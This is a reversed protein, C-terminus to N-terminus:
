FLIRQFFNISKSLFKSTWEMLKCGRVNELAIIINEPTPKSIMGAHLLVRPTFDRSSPGTDMSKGKGIVSELVNTCGLIARDKSIGEGERKLHLIMENAAEKGKASMKINKLNKKYEIASKCHYGGKIVQSEAMECVTIVNKVEALWDEWELICKIKSRVLNPLMHSKKSKLFKVLKLGHFVTIDLNLFRGKKRQHPPALSAWESQKLKQKLKTTLKSFSLYSSDKKYLKSIIIGKRHTIDTSILTKKYNEGYIEGGKKLDTGNDNLVQHFNNIGANDASELICRNIIEGNSTNMPELLLPILDNYTVVFDGRERLAKLSVGVGILCKLSGGKITHDLMLCIDGELQKPTILINLSYRLSWLRISTYAPCTLDGWLPYGCLEYFLEIIKTIVRYSVGLFCMQISAAIM